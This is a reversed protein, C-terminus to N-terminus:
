GEGKLRDVLAAIHAASDFNAPTIDGRKLKVGFTQEVFVVVELAFLSNVLGSKLLETDETLHSSGTKEWLFRLVTEKVDM